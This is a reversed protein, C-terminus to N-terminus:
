VPLRAMTTVTMVDADQALPAFKWALIAGYDHRMTLVGLGSVRETNDAAHREVLEMYLADPDETLVREIFHQFAAIADPAISNTVYLSITDKEMYM